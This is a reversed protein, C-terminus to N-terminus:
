RSRYLPELGADQDKAKDEKKTGHAAFQRWLRQGQWTAATQAYLARDLETLAESLSPPCRRAVATLSLPPHQPWRRRAWALVAGKARVADNALCSAQLEKELRRLSEEEESGAPESRVSARRARWWWVVLTALWGGGFALAIWAWRDSSPHPQPSAQPTTPTAPVIPTTQKAPAPANVTPVPPPTAGSGAPASIVTFSRAALSAV